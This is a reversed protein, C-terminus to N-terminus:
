VMSNEKTVFSSSQFNKQQVRRNRMMLRFITSKDRKSIKAKASM